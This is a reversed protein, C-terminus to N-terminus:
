TSVQRRIVSPPAFPPALLLPTTSFPSVPLPTSLSGYLSHLPPPALILLLPLPIVLYPSSYALPLYTRTLLYSYPLPTPYPM